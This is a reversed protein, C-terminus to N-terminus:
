IKMIVSTITLLSILTTVYQLFSGGMFKYLSDILQDHSYMHCILYMMDGGASSRRVGFNPLARVQLSLSRDNFGYLRKIAHGVHPRKIIQFLQWQSRTEKLAFSFQIDTSM